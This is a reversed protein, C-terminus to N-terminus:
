NFKTYEFAADPDRIPRCMKEPLSKVWHEAEEYSYFVRGKTFFTTNHQPTKLYEHDKFKKYAVFRGSSRAYPYIYCNPYEPDRFMNTTQKNPM